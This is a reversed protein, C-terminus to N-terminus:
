YEKGPTPMAGMNRRQNIFEPVKGRDRKNRIQEEIDRFLDRQESNQAKKLVETGYVYDYFDRAMKRNLLDKMTDHWRTERREQLWINVGVLAVAAGLIVYIM